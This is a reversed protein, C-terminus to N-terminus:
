RAFCAIVDFAVAEGITPLDLVSVFGQCTGETGLLVQASVFDSAHAFRLEELDVGRAALMADFADRAGFAAMGLLVARITDADKVIQHVHTGPGWAGRKRALALLEEITLDADRPYSWAHARADCWDAHGLSCVDAALIADRLVRVAPESSEQVIGDARDASPYASRIEELCTDAVAAESDQDGCWPPAHHMCTDVLHDALRGECSISLLESLEVQYDDEFSAQSMCDLMRTQVPSPCSSVRPEDAVTPQHPDAVPEGCALGMLAVLTTTALRALVTLPMGLNVCTRTV